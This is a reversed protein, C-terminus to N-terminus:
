DNKVLNELLNILRWRRRHLTYLSRNNSSTAELHLVSLRRSALNWARHTGLWRSTRLMVLCYEIMTFPFHSIRLSFLGSGPQRSIGGGDWAAGSMGPQHLESTLVPSGDSAPNNSSEGPNAGSVSIISSQSFQSSTNWVLPTSMLADWPVVNRGSSLFDRSSNRGWPTNLPFVTPLKAKKIMCSILWLANVKRSMLSWGIFLSGGRRREVFFFWVRSQCSYAVSQLYLQSSTPINPSAAVRDPGM